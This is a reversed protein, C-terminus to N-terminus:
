GGLSRYYSAKGAFGMALYTRSLKGAFFRTARADHAARALELCHLYHHAAMHWERGLEAQSARLHALRADLITQKWTLPEEPPRYESM